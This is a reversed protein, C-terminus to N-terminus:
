LEAAKQAAPSPGIDDPHVLDMGVAVNEIVFVFRDAADALRVLAGAVDNLGLKEGM